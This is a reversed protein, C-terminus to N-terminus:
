SPHRYYIKGVIKWGEPFRYLSLYDSFIHKDNRFIEVRVVAADGVVDVLSFEHKVKPREGVPKAAAQEVYGIWKELPLQTLAGERLGFIAFEPHFGARMADPNPAAHVGNVYADLVAKKVAARDADSAKPDGAFGALSVFVVLILTLGVQAKM